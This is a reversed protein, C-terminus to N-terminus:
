LGALGSVDLIAGNTAYRAVANAAEIWTLEGAGDYCESVFELADDAAQAGDFYGIMAYVDRVVAALPLGLDTLTKAANSMGM